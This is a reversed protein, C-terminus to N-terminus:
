DNDQIKIPPKNYQGGSMTLGSYLTYRSFKINTVFVNLGVPGIKCDYVNAIFKSSLFHM